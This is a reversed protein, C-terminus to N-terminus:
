RDEVVGSGGPGARASHHVHQPGPHSARLQVRPIGCPARRLVQRRSGTIRRRHPAEDDCAGINGCLVVCAQRRAVQSGEVTRGALALGCSIRIAAVALRAVAHTTCSGEWSCAHHVHYVVWRWVEMCRRPWMGTSSRSHAAPHSMSWGDEIALLTLAATAAMAAVLLLLLPPPPPPLPPLSRAKSTLV